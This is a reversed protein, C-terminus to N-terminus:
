PANPGRTLRWRPGEERAAPTRRGSADVAVVDSVFADYRQEGYGMPIARPMVLARAEPVGGVPTMEVVVDDAGAREYRLRYAVEGPTPQAPAATPALAAVLFFALLRATTM